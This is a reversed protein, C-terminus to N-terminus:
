QKQKKKPKTKNKLIEKNNYMFVSYSDENAGSLPM